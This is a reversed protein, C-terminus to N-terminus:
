AVAQLTDLSTWMANSASHAPRLAGRPLQAADVVVRDPSYPPSGDGPSPEAPSDDRRVAVSLVKPGRRTRGGGKTAEEAPAPGTKGRRREARRRPPLRKLIANRSRADEVASDATSDATSDAPPPDLAPPAIGDAPALPEPSAATTPFPAPAPASQPSIPGGPAPSRARHHLRLKRRSALRQTPGPTDADQPDAEYGPDLEPEPDRAEAPAEAPVAGDLPSGPDGARTRARGRRVCPSQPGPVPAPSGRRGDAVAEACKARARRLSASSRRSLPAGGADSAPASDPSPLRNSPPIRHGPPSRSAHSRASGTPTSGPSNARSGPLLGAFGPMSAFGPQPSPPPPPSVAGPRAPSAGADAKEGKAGRWSQPLSERVPTRPQEAAERSRRLADLLQQKQSSNGLAAAMNSRRPRRPRPADTSELETAPPDGLGTKGPTAPAAHLEPAPLDAITVPTPDTQPQPDPSGGPTAAPRSHPEETAGCEPEGARVILIPPPPGPAAASSDAHADAAASSTQLPVRRLSETAHLPTACPTPSARLDFSMSPARPPPAPDLEPSAPGASRAPPADRKVPVLGMSDFDFNIGHQEFPPQVSESEKLTSVILAQM